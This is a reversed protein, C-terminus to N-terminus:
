YYVHVHAHTHSSLQLLCAELSARHQAGDAASGSVRAGTGRHHPVQAPQASGPQPRAHSVHAPTECLAM